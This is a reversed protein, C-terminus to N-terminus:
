AVLVMSIRPKSQWSPSPSSDLRAPHCARCIHTNRNSSDETKGVVRCLKFSHCCHQQINKRVVTLQGQPTGNDNKRGYEERQGQVFEHQGLKSSQKRHVSSERCYRAMGDVRLTDLDVAISLREDELKM